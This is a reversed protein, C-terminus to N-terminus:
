IVHSSIIFIALIWSGNQRRSKKPGYDAYVYKLPITQNGQKILATEWLTPASVTTRMM